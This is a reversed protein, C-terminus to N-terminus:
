QNLKLKSIQVLCTTNTCHVHTRKNKSLEIRVFYVFYKVIVQSCSFENNKPQFRNFPQFEADNKRHSKKIKVRKQGFIIFKQWIWTQKRNESGFKHSIHSRLIFIHSLCSNVFSYCTFIRRLMQFSIMKIINKTTCTCVPKNTLWTQNTPLSFNETPFFSQVAFLGDDHMYSALLGTRM